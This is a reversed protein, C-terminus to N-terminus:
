NEYAKSNIEELEEIGELVEKLNLNEIDNNLVYTLYVHGEEEDELEFQVGSYKKEDRIFKIINLNEESKLVEIDKIGENELGPNEKSGVIVGLLGFKNEIEDIRKEVEEDYRSKKECLFNGDNNNILFQVMENNSDKKLSVGSFPEIVGSEKNYILPSGNEDILFGDEDLSVNGMEECLNFKESKLIFYDKKIVIKNM